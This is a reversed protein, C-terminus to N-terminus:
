KQSELLHRILPNDPFRQSALNLIARARGIEGRSMYGNSLNIYAEALNSDRAIAQNSMTISRDLDGRIGYIYGLQYYARAKINEIDFNDLAYDFGAIGSEIARPPSSLVIQLRAIAKDYLKLESYIIGADLWLKPYIGIFKEARLLLGAISDAENLSGLARIKALYGAPMNPKLEIASDAYSDATRPSNKLYYLSSLNSCVRANRPSIIKEQKFYIEASDILGMKMYTAGLNLNGEPYRPNDALLMRYNVIARSYNGKSLYYNAENFLASEINGKDVRYFNSNSFWFILLGLGLLLFTKLSFDRKGIREAIDVAGIAGFAIIIPIVPLRFRANIFFFSILLFYSSTFFLLFLHTGTLKRAWFLGAIGVFSLSLIVAFNLPIYNLIPNNSFFYPLNRNNSVEFNNVCFYLKKLYLHLFDSKHNWIWNYGKKFWFDSVESATLYRGVEKQALYQLDSVQWDARLPPPLSASLGDADSNNGIYLNIGGSTAITVFDGSVAYNRITVPLVPLIVAGILFISARFSTRLNRRKLFIWIIYIVTLPLVVPRTIAALGIIFGTLFIMKDNHEENGIIFLLLSLEVLMMFLSEVLLESEFYIAIPYCAHILAAVVAAKKSSIQLTLRYTIFISILGILHGFIRAALLSHGFIAYIGGLLYIYLPARFYAEHGIIDGGAIAQAWRDHFLSDVLIQDWLPGSLYILLYILRVVAGIALVAYLPRKRFFELFRSM